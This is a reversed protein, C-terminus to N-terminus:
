SFAKLSIYYNSLIEIGVFRLVRCERNLNRCLLGAQNSASYVECLVAFHALPLSTIIHLNIALFRIELLNLAYLLVGSVQAKLCIFSISAHRGRHTPPMPADLGEHTRFGLQNLQSRFSICVASM